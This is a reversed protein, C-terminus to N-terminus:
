LHPVKSKKKSNYVGPSLFVVKESNQVMMQREGGTIIGASTILLPIAHRTIPKISHVVKAGPLFDRNKKSNGIVDIENEDFVQRLVQLLRNSLDPEYVVIPYRKTVSSYDKILLALPLLDDSNHQSERNLMLSMLNKGFRKEFDEVIENSVTYGLLSSSDVLEVINELDLKGINDNIYYMLSDHANTIEFVEGVQRLKIDYPHLEISKIAEAFSRAHASIEFVNLEGWTVAWNINYETLAMKWVRAEADWYCYGQSKKSFERIEEISSKEYCFKLVIEGDVVDISKTTDVVRFPQRFQNLNERRSDIGMSALQRHYKDIIKVLLEGQRETLANGGITTESMNQLVSVDYRALNIIPNFWNLGSTKLTTPDRLGSIVELYDEVYEYKKM